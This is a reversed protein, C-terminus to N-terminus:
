KGSGVSIVGNTNAGAAPNAPGWAKRAAARRNALGKVKKGGSSAYTDHESWYAADPDAGPISMKKTLTPSKSKSFVGWGANYATDLAASMSNQSLRRFWPLNKYMDAANNRYNKLVLGKSKDQTMKDGERVARMKGTAEDPIQTLGHGVTWVKGINDWYANPAFSEWRMSFPMAASIADNIKAVMIDEDTLTKVAQAHPEAALKEVFDKWNPEM